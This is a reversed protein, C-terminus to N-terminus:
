GEDELCVVGDVAPLEAVIGYREAIAAALGTRGTDEGHTLVIRPRRPAVDALWDLLGAQDAHASFGEIVRVRANVTVTEGFIEVSRAGEQLKRGLTADAMYGVLFVEVDARGLNHRLHHVIRGGECMGSASLLICAHQSDNLRRSEDVSAVVRLARALDHDIQQRAMLQRTDADFVEPHRRLAETAEAAMPSDLFIPYDRALRGERIMEALTFLLWQTRGVAFAPILIRHGADVAEEVRQKFTDVTESLPPHLRDGYTSEMVVLDAEAPRSPDRLIPVDRRGVDGSFVLTRVRDGAEIKLEVSAAGMIHGAELLRLRIGPAIERPTGPALPHIRKLLHAVDDPTYIPDLPPQGAAERLRNLRHMDEAEIHAIDNLLIGALDATAHTAHVHGRWGNATLLPLRGAHDIHAHSLVVADLRRPDVPGLSRSRQRADPTGQFVGFDVLVRARDTEVLYGSGTVEGCAGCFHLRIMSFEKREPQVISAARDVGAGPLGAAGNPDAGSPRKGARRAVRAARTCPM